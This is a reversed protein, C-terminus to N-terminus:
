LIVLLNTTSISAIHRLSGSFRFSFRRRMTESSPENGWSDVQQFSYPRNHFATYSTLEWPEYRVGCGGANNGRCSTEPKYSIRPDTSHVTVNVWSSEVTSALLGLALCASPWWMALDLTTGFLFALLLPKPFSSAATRHPPQVGILPGTRFEPPIESITVWRRDCM